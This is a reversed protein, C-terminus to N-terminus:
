SIENKKLVYKNNDLWDISAHGKYGKEWIYWAYVLMGTKYKGDERITDSLMPYRTFVYVRALENFINLEYRKQGHLYNLPMLFAIKELYIEKAHIIFKTVLSFPPNTIINNYKEEFYLFNHSEGFKIDYAALKSKNCYYKSLIDIIANDGSAPELISGYFKEVSLLQETMSYPTQYFDSKNRQGRDVMSFCKGKM